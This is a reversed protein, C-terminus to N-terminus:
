ERARSLTYLQGEYWVKKPRVRKAFREVSVDFVKKETGARELIEAVMDRGDVYAPINWLLAHGDPKLLGPLAQALRKLVSAGVDGDWFDSLSPAHNEPFGEPWVAPMGWFVADFLEGPLRSNGNEDAVNDGVFARVKFGAIKATAKTNAVELPNIGIVVVPKSTRSSAIWTDVGSGPGVVLIDPDRGLAFKKSVQRLYELEDPTMTRLVYVTPFKPIVTRRQGPTHTAVLRLFEAPEMDSVISETSLLRDFVMPSFEHAAWKGTSDDVEHLRYPLHTERFPPYGAIVQPYREDLFAMIAEQDKKYDEAFTTWKELLAPDDSRPVEIYYPSLDFFRPHLREWEESTMGSKAVGDPFVPFVAIPRGKGNYLLDFRQLRLTNINALEVQLIHLGRASFPAPSAKSDLKIRVAYSADPRAAKPEVLLGERPAVDLLDLASLLEYAPTKSIEADLRSRTAAGAVAPDLILVALIAGALLVSSKM